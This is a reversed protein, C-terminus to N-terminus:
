FDYTKYADHIARVLSDNPNAHSRMADSISELGEYVLYNQNYFDSFSIALGDIQRNEFSNSPIWFHLSSNYSFELLTTMCFCAEDVGKKIALHRSGKSVGFFALDDKKVPHAYVFQGPEISRLFEKIFLQPHKELLESVM